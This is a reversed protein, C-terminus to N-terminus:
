CVIFESKKTAIYESSFHYSVYVLFFIHTCSVLLFMDCCLVIISSSSFHESAITKTSQPFLRIFRVIKTIFFHDIKDTIKKEQWITCDTIERFNYTKLSFWVNRYLWTVYHWRLMMNKDYSCLCWWCSRIIKGWILSTQSDSRFGVWVWGSGSCFWLLVWGSGLWFGVLVWGSGSFSKLLVM